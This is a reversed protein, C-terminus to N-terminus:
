AIFTYVILPGGISSDEVYSTNCQWWGLQVVSERTPVMQIYGWSSSNWSTLIGFFGWGRRYGLSFNWEERQASVWLEIWDRFYKWWPHWLLKPTWLGIRLELSSRTSLKTLLKPWIRWIGSIPNWINKRWRGCPKANPASHCMSLTEHRHIRLTNVHEYQSLSFGNLAALMNICTMYVLFSTDSPSMSWSLWVAIIM